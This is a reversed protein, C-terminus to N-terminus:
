FRWDLRVRYTRPDDIYPFGALASVVYIEDTCNDCWVRVDWTGDMARLGLQLGLLDLTPLDQLGGELGVVGLHVEEGLDKGFGVGERHDRVRRQAERLGVLGGGESGGILSAQARKSFVIDLLQDGFTFLETVQFVNTPMENPVQLAVFRFFDNAGRKRDM